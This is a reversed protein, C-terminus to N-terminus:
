TFACAVEVGNPSASSDVAIAFTKPSCAVLWLQLDARGLRHGTVQQAAGASQFGADGHHGHSRCSEASWSGPHIGIRCACEVVHRVLGCRCLISM